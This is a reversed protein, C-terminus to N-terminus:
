SFWNSYKIHSAWLNFPHIILLAHNASDIAVKASTKKPGRDTTSAVM